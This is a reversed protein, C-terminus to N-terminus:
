EQPPAPPQRDGATYAARGLAPTLQRHRRLLHEVAGFQEPPHGQLPHEAPEPGPVVPAAQLGDALRDLLRRPRGAPRRDGPSNTAIVSVASVSRSALSRVSKSRTANIISPTYKASCRHTTASPMSMSPVLCGSPNISPDVSFVVTTLVRSVPSRSRPRSVVLGIMATSSPALASAAPTWSTKSLGTMPRQWSCLSLFTRSWRGSVM